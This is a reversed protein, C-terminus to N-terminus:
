EAERQRRFAVPDLLTCPVGSGCKGCVDAKGVGAHVAENERLWAYCGVRDLRDGLAGVPCRQECARCRYGAKSLCREEQSRPSPELDLDCIVSGLRGACGRATILLHNAGFVGLGAIFAAHKHSWDSRLIQPDFNHTPPTRAVRHGAAALGDALHQNLEMILQNTEVYARAWIESAYAPERARNSRPIAPDFPLFYAIVSRAGALLDSPGAHSPGVLEGLKEFLPDDARSFGVLPERWRTIVGQHQADAVFGVITEVIEARRM